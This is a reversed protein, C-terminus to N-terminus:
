RRGTTTGLTTWARRWRRRPVFCNTLSHLLTHTHAPMHMKTPPTPTPHPASPRRHHPPHAPKIRARWVHLCSNGMVFESNSLYIYDVLLHRLSATCHTLNDRLFNTCTIFLKLLEWVFKGIKARVQNVTDKFIAGCLEAHLANREAPQICLM